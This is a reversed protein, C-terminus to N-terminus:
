AIVLANISVNQYPLDDALYIAYDKCPKNTLKMPCKTKFYRGNLYILYFKFHILSYNSFSFPKKEKSNLRSVLIKSCKKNAKVKFFTQSM